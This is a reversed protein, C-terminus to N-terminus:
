IKLFIQDLSTKSEHQNTSIRTSDHQSTDSEHQLISKNM